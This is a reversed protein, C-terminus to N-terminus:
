GCFIPRAHNSAKDLAIRLARGHSHCVNGSLGHSIQRNLKALSALSERVVDHTIQWARLNLAILNPAETIGLRLVDRLM